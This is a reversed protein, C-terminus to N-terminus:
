ILVLQYRYNRKFGGNKTSNQELYDIIETVLTRDALEIHNPCIQIHRWYLLAREIRSHINDTPLYGFGWVSQSLHNVFYYRIKYDTGAEFLPELYVEIHPLDSRRSYRLIRPYVCQLMLNMSARSDEARLDRPTIFDIDKFVKHFYDLGSLRIFSIQFLICIPRGCHQASDRQAELRSPNSVNELRGSCRLFTGNGWWSPNSSNSPWSTRLNKWGYFHLIKWTFHSFIAVRTVSLARHVPLARSLLKSVHDAKQVPMSCLLHPVFLLYCPFELSLLHCSESSIAM